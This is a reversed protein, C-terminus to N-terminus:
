CSIFLKPTELGELSSRIAMRGGLTPFFKRQRTTARISKTTNRQFFAPMNKNRKEASSFMTGSFRARARLHFTFNGNGFVRESTENRERNGRSAATVSALPTSNHLLFYKTFFNRSNQSLLHVSIFFLTTKHDAAARKLKVRADAPQPLFSSGAGAGAGAGIAGAAGSAAAGPSGPAIAGAGAPSAAGAAGIAGASLLGISFFASVFFDL